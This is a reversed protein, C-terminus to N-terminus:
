INSTINRVATDFIYYVVFWLVKLPSLVIFLEIQLMGTGCTCLFLGLECLNRRNKTLRKMPVATINLLVFRDM